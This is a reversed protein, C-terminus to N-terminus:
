EDMDEEFEGMDIDDDEFFKEDKKPRSEGSRVYEEAREMSRSMRRSRDRVTTGGNRIAEAMSHLKDANFRNLQSLVVAGPSKVEDKNEHYDKTTTIADLIYQKDGGAKEYIADAVTDRVEYADPIAEDVKKRLWEAFGNPAPPAKPYQKREGSGGQTQQQQRGRQQGKRRNNSAVPAETEPFGLFGDGQECEDYDLRFRKQIQSITKDPYMLKLGVYILADPGLEGNATALILEKPVQVTNAKFM